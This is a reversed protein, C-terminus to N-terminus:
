RNQSDVTFYINLILTSVAEFIFIFFVKPELETETRTISPVRITPSTDPMAKDAAVNPRTFVVVIIM